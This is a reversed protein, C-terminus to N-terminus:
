ISTPDTLEYYTTRGTLVPSKITGEQVLTTVIKDFDDATLGMAKLMVTRPAKGGLRKLIVTFHVRAQAYPTPALWRLMRGFDTMIIEVMKIGTVVHEVDVVLDSRRSLSLLMSLKLATDHFREVFADLRIDGTSEEPLSMYWKEFVAKAEDTPVMVGSLSGIERLDEVLDDQSPPKDLWAIKKRRRDATVSIMRGILGGVADEPLVKLNHPATAMLLVPYANHVEWVGETATTHPYFDPCDYLKTLLISMRSARQRDYGFLSALEDNYLLFHSDQYAKLTKTAVTLKTRNLHKVLGEPTISGTVMYIDQGFAERILNIGMNIAVSKRVLASEATILVYINPYLKYRMRDM